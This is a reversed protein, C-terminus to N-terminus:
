YWGLNILSQLQGKVPRVPRKRTVARQENLAHCFWGEVVSEAAAEIKFVRSSGEQDVHHRSMYDAICTKGPRYVVEYEFEQM